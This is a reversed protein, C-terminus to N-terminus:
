CGPDPLRAQVSSRRARPGHQTEGETLKGDADFAQRLETGLSMYPDEVGPQLQPLRGKAAECSKLRHDEFRDKHQCLRERGSLFTRRRSM